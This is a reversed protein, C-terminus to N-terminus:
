ELSLQVRFSGSAPTCLQLLEQPHKFALYILFHLREAQFKILCEDSQNEKLESKGAVSVFFLPSIMGGSPPQTLTTHSSFAKLPLFLSVKCHM